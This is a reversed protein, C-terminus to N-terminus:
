RQTHFLDHKMMKSTLYDGTKCYHDVLAASAADADKEITSNFIALHEGEINREEYGVEASAIYRYRINLDYLQSCYRELTPMKSNQLLAFHFAKHAVEFHTKPRRKCQNMKHHKLVLNDEWDEDANAISSRLAIVELSCRLSLIENFNDQSVPMVRFGRQDLREVLMDSTLLSLAERVPTAGTKLIRRLEQIKLKKGPPLEGTLILGRLRLYCNQIASYQSNKM